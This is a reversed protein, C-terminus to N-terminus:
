IHNFVYLFQIIPLYIFSAFMLKRALKDDLTKYFQITIYLFWLGSLLGIILSVVGTFNFLYPLIGAPVLLISSLLIINASRQDKRGKSPLLSFGGKAYDEDSVWAIAWFHPFQWVFQVLFMIGALLSFEGEVAVVGLMPPIAGPFAGVFVAWPSVRKMPTYIFVYMCLAMIGLIGSFFNIQFLIIAGLVAMGVAWMMAENITMNNTPLPRKATRPMKKDLEREIIQNFANSAGTILYGGIILFWFNLGFGGKAFLYGSVSSIVVLFSLRMKTLAMISKVKSQTKSSKIAIQESAM